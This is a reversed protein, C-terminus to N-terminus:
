KIDCNISYNGFIDSGTTENGNCRSVATPKTDKYTYSSYNETTSGNGSTYTKSCQCVYNKKCGTVALGAVVLALLAISKKM